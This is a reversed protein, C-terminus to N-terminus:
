GRRVWLICLRFDWFAETWQRSGDACMWVLEDTGCVLEDTGWFWNMPEDGLLREVGKLTGGVVTSNDGCDVEEGGGM